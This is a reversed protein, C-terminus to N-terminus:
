PILMFTLKAEVELQEDGELKLNTNVRMADLLAASTVVQPLLWRGVSDDAM